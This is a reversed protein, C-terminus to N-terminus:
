ALTAGSVHILTGPNSRQPFYSRGNSFADIILLVPSKLIGAVSQLVDLLTCLRVGLFTHLDRFITQFVEMVREIENAISLSHLQRLYSM